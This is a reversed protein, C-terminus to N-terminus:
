KALKAECNAIAHKVSEISTEEAAGLTGRAKMDLWIDLSRQYLRRATQWHSIREGSSANGTTAIVTYADAVHKCANARANRLESTESQEDTTDILAIVKRCQELAAAREGNKALAPATAAGGEILVWRKWVNSPDASAVEERIALSQRFHTVANSHDGTEALMDGIRHHAFAIDM